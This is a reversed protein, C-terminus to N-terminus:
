THKPKDNHCKWSGVEAQRCIEATIDPETWQHPKIIKGDDRRHFTGDPFRKSMNAGHVINFIEDLNVGVKAFANLTYYWDDIAADAQHAILDFSDTPPQYDPKLDTRVSKIVMAVADDLNTTVTQALEVIESLKMRILFEVELRTMVIPVNPVPYGSLETFEKVQIAQGQNM